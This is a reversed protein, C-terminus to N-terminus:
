QRSTGARNQGFSFNVPWLGWTREGRWRGPGLLEEVASSLRDTYCAIIAPDDLHEEIDYDSPWTEPDSALIGAKQEMRRWVCRCAAAAQRATFAESVKCYGLEVFQEIQEPTLIMNAVVIESYILASDYVATM